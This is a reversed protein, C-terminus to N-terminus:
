IFSDLYAILADILDVLIEQAAPDTIWGGACKKRIEGLKNIAAEINGEDIMAQVTDLKELLVRRREEPENKFSDDGLNSIVNKIDEVSPIMMTTRPYPDQNNSSGNISYPFDVIGFPAVIDPTTWDDWYNYSFINPHTPNNGSDSAQSLGEVYLANGIFDNWEITNNECTGSRGGSIGIGLGINNMITNNAIFCNDAYFYLSIGGSNESISNYQVTHNDSNVIGIGLKNDSIVNMKITNNKTGPQLFIGRANHAVTHNDITNGSIVNYKSGTTFDIGFQTNHHIHNNTITNNQSGATVWIGRNNGYVNNDKVSTNHSSDLWIGYGFNVVTTNAVEGNKTDWFWIGYGGGLGELLCDRITFNATIHAITILPGSGQIHLNSITYPNDETGDGPFGKENFEEDNGIAIPDHPTLAKVESIKAFSFVAVILASVILLQLVKLSFYEKKM